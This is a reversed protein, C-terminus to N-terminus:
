FIKEFHLSVRRGVMTLGSPCFIKYNPCEFDGSITELNMFDQVNKRKLSIKKVKSSNKISKQYYNIFDFVKQADQANEHM